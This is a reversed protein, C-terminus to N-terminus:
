MQNFIITDYLDMKSVANTMSKHTFTSFLNSQIFTINKYKKNNYKKKCYDIVEKQIDVAFVRKVASCQAAEVALVGYGTGIDLVNGKAYDKIHKQILFTDEAPEYITM